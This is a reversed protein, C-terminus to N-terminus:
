RGGRILDVLEGSQEATDVREDVAGTHVPRGGRELERELIPAVRERDIKVAREEAGLAGGPVHHLLAASAPDDIDGGHVLERRELAPDRVRDRLV